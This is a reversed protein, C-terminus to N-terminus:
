AIRRPAIAAASLYGRDRLITNDGQCNDEHVMVGCFIIRM